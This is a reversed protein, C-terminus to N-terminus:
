DWDGSASLASQRLLEQGFSDVVSTKSTSL